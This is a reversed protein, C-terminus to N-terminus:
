TELEFYTKLKKSPFIGLKRTRLNKGRVSGDEITINMQTLDVKIIDGIQLDDRNNEIAIKYLISHGSMFYNLDLSHYDKFMGYNKAQKLEYALRCTISSFKCIIHDTLAM